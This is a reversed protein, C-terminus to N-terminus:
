CLPSRPQRLTTSRTAPVIRAAIAVPRRRSAATAPRVSLGGTPSPGSNHFPLLLEHVFHGEPAAAYHQGAAPFWEVLTISTATAAEAALVDACLVNDLDLPLVKDGDVLGVHRPINGKRRLDTVAAFVHVLANDGFRVAEGLPALDREDLRWTARCLVVRGVTIRPLFPLQALAGWQWTLTAADQHQLAWLCRYVALDAASPIHSTALRPAIDRGLARSRLILRGGALRITLDSVPIQDSDDADSQGLCLIEHQRLHPRCIINGDWPQPLHVIEAPIPETGSAEQRAFWDRVAVNLDRDGHCFRGLLEGGSPGVVGHLLVDFQGSNVATESAAALTVRAAFFDPLPAHPGVELVDLDADDLPMVQEGAAITALLRKLMHEDRRTWAAANPSPEPSTEVHPDECDYGVGLDDDLAELLPVEQEGYRAAFSDRFRNLPEPGPYPTVRHLLRVADAIAATVPRNLTADPAPKYLNVHFCRAPDLKPHITRLAPLLDRYRSPPHGLGGRDLDRLSKEVMALDDSVETLVPTHLRGLRTMVDVLPEPGTVGPDIGGVLLQCSLLTGIFARAGDDRTGHGLSAVAEVLDAITAGGAARDLAVQTQRTSEIDCWRFSRRLSGRATRVQIYRLRSGARYITPNARVRLRPDTAAAQGLRETVGLLFGVDLTTFTRCRALLVTHLRSVPGMRGMSCGALLGDPTASGTMQAFYRVLRRSLETTPEGDTGLDRLAQDVDPAALFLAQRVEPRAM